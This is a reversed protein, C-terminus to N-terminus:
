LISVRVALGFSLKSASAKRAEAPTDLFITVYRRPSVIKRWPSGPSWTRYM